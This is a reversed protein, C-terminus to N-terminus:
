TYLDFVKAFTQSKCFCKNFCSESVEIELLKALKDVLFLCFGRVPESDTSELDSEINNIVIMNPANPATNNRRSFHWRRTFKIELMKDKM